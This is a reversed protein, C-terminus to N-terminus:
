TIRMFEKIKKKIVEANETYARILFRRGVKVGYHSARQRSKESKSDVAGVEHVAAAYAVDFYIMHSKAPGEPHVHGSATLAGTVIPARHSAESLIYNAILYNTQKVRATTKKALSDLKAKLNNGDKKMEMKVKM